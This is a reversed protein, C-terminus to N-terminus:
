IFIILSKIIFLVTLVLHDFFCVTRLLKKDIGLVKGVRIATSQDVIGSSLQLKQEKMIRDLNQRDIVSFRHSEIIRTVIKDTLANTFKKHDYQGGWGTFPLVSIREKESNNSYLLGFCIILQLFLGCKKTLM